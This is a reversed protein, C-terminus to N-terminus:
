GLLATALRSLQKINEVTFCQHAAPKRGRLRKLQARRRSRGVRLALCEVIRPHRRNPRLGFSVFCRARSSKFRTAAPSGVRSISGEYLTSREVIERSMGYAAPAQDVASGRPPPEFARRSWERRRRLQTCSTISQLPSPAGVRSYMGLLARLSSAVFSSTLFRRAFSM